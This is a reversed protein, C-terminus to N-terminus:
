GSLTPGSISGSRELSGLSSTSSVSGHSQYSGSLSSSSDARAIRIRNHLGALEGASFITSQQRKQAVTLNHLEKKANSASTQVEQLERQLSNTQELSARLYAATREQQLTMIQQLKAIEQRLLENQQLVEQPTMMVQGNM